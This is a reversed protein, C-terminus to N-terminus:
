KKQLFKLIDFPKVQRNPFFSNVADSEDDYLEFVTTLKTIVLLQIQRNSLHALKLAGGAAKMTSHALILAGLGSSDIFDVCKLNIVARNNGGESLERVLSRVAASSDGATISGTFTCILVGEVERKAIALPM